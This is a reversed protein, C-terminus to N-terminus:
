KKGEDQTKLLACITKGDEVSSLRPYPPPSPYRAQIANIARAAESSVPAIGLRAKSVADRLEALNLAGREGGKECTAEKADFYMEKAFSVIDDPVPRCYFRAVKVSLYDARKEPEDQTDLLIPEMNQIGLLIGSKVFPHDGISRVDSEGGYFHIEQQETGYGPAYVRLRWDYRISKDLKLNFGISFANATSPISYRGDKDTRVIERHVCGTGQTGGRGHGMLFPNSVWRRWLVVVYAGPVPERTQADLVIGRKPAQLGFEVHPSVLWVYAMGIGLVIALFVCRWSCKRSRMPRNM